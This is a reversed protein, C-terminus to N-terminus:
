GATGARRAYTDAADAVQRVYSADHNYSYVAAEWGTATALDHDDACLYRGAALAADDLDDADAWGDGDADAHWRQWTSGLFQMPGLARAWGGGDRIAGFGGSGDLAPGRIPTSSHGDPELTRGGLTGHQSEIWGIGALTNWSLHCDPQEAALWLQATGYARVAPAPIGTERAIRATWAPDVLSRGSTSRTPGNRRAREGRPSPATLQPAADPGLGPALLSQDAPALMPGAAGGFRVVVAGLAALVLLAGAVTAAIVGRGVGPVRPSSM